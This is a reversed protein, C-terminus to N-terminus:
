YGLLTKAHQPAGLPKVQNNLLTPRNIAQQRTRRRRGAEIALRAATARDNSEADRASAVAQQDDDAKDNAELQAQSLAQREADRQAAAGTAKDIGKVVQEGGKVIGLATLATVALTPM